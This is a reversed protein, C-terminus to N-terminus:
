AATADLGHPLEKYHTNSFRLALVTLTPAPKGAIADGRYVLCVSYGADRALGAGVNVTGM